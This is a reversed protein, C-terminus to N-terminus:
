NYKTIIKCETDYYHKYKDDSYPYSADSGHIEGDCSCVTEIIKIHKMEHIDEYYNEDRIFEIDAVNPNGNYVFGNEECVHSLNYIYLCKMCVGMNINEFEISHVEFNTCCCNPCEIADAGSPTYIKKVTM